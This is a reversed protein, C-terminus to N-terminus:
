SAIWLSYPAIGPLGIIFVAPLGSLIFIIISKIYTADQSNKIAVISLCIIWIFAFHRLMYISNQSLLIPFILFALHLIIGASSISMISMILIKRNYKKLFFKCFFGILFIFLSFSILAVVWRIQPINFFSLIENIGQDSYFNSKYGKKSFSKFLTILISLLFMGVVSYEYDGKSINRFAVSPRFLIDRLLVVPDAFLNVM